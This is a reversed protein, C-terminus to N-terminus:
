LELGAGALVISENGVLMKKERGLGGGALCLGWLCFFVFCFRSLCLSPHSQSIQEMFCLSLWLPLLSALLEKGM